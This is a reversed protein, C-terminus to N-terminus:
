MHGTEAKPFAPLHFACTGMDTIRIGSRGRFARVGKQRQQLSVYSKRGSSRLYTDKEATATLIRIKKQRQQPPVYSKRGSTRLYTDKEAGEALTRIKKQRQQSPINRKRGSYVRGRCNEIPL